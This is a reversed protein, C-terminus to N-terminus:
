RAVRSLEALLWTLWWRLVRASHYNNNAIPNIVHALAHEVITAGIPTGGITRVVLLRLRAPDWNMTTWDAPRLPVLVLEYRTGDGPELFAVTPHGGLLRVLLDERSVNIPTIELDFELVTTM